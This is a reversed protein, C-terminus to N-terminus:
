DEPPEALLCDLEKGHWEFQGLDEQGHASLEGLEDEGAELFCAEHKDGPDGGDSVYWDPKSRNRGLPIWTHVTSGWPGPYSVKVMKPCAEVLARIQEPTPDEPIDDM